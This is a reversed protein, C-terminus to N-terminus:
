VFKCDLALAQNLLRLYNPRSIEVAGFMTLHGTVYQTDLLRFGREKLRDVLGVLAVKSADPVKHFMSEGFFAGYVSVGYLGGVLEKEQWAEVSHAFGLRYLNIYSEIIEESIWTEARKGCSRIVEEFATNLRIQFQEKKLTRKLGHPIHFAELPIIGRPDPSFWAIDGTEMAMPFIGKCYAELLLSAPIIKSRRRERVSSLTYSPILAPALTLALFLHGATVERSSANANSSL